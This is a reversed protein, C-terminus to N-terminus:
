NKFKSKELHYENEQLEKNPIINTLKDSLKKNIIDTTEKIRLDLSQIKDEMKIKTNEIYRLSKQLEKDKSSDKPYNRILSELTLIRLQSSSM